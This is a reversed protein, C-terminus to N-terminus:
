SRAGAVATEITEYLQDAASEKTLFAAAGAERMARVVHEAQNVSLGVVVTQPHARRIRKTAEIGDLRPLNVDMVVLDPKLLGALTVAEEGDGAEAIIDLDAYGDLLSRLGQRVMAHDDVLLVRVPASSRSAHDALRSASASVGSPEEVRVAERKVSFTEAAGGGLTALSVGLTVITGAGPRSEMQMWGDVAEMRERISFLGFTTTKKDLVVAPDCGRGRDRVSIQLRGPPDERMAVSARNVGAHKLVNFLLERVCQYLMRTLDESMPPTAAPVDVEVELGQAAMTEGLWRLGGALGFQRLTPPMLEAVLTRTYTLCQDILDDADRLVGAAPDPAITQTAQNLKLRTVVLMQALYDHLESAIRQRERQETLTLEQALGRLRDHTHVLEKTREAIRRELEKTWEVRQAEAEKRGTVDFTVGVFRAPRGAEDYHIRGYPALWRVEGTDARRIRHEAHYLGGGATAADMAQRVAERDDEHVARWWLDASADVTHPEYGLLLFNERNWVARGTAMDVDWTGMAAGEVALRLREESETLQAARRRSEQLLRRREKAMAVYSAVAEMLEIEDAEFSTRRSSALALTGLLRDGVVLPFSVYATSGIAQLRAARPDTADQLREVVVPRRTQASAGGLTEGFKLFSLPPLAEEPVGAWGTLVIGTQDGAVDYDLFTDLSFAAKLSVFLDQMIEAPDEVRLLKDMTDSLLQQWLVHNHLDFEARKRADIDEVVGILSQIRGGADWQISLTVTVWVADGDPRLLRQDLSVEPLGGLLLKGVLAEHEARDEPHSLERLEYKLLEDAPRGAIACLKDNVRLLRGDPGVVCMGVAAQEFLGRFQEESRRLREVLQQNEQQRARLRLLSAVASVLEEPEFPEVLYGDSGVDLGLARESSVHAASIHLVLVDAHEPLSKIRQCLELGNIDPMQVKLLVLAPHAEDLVRLAGRGTGADVVEYGARELIARKAARRDERDDVNLIMSTHASM